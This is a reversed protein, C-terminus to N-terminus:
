SSSFLVKPPEQFPIAYIGDIVRRYDAPDAVNLKERHFARTGSSFSLKGADLYRIANDISRAPIVAGQAYRSAPFPIDLTGQEFAEAVAEALDIPGLNYVAMLLEEVERCLWYREEELRDAPATFSDLEAGYLAVERCFRISAANAEKTPIGKAEQFTKNILKTAKGAVAAVVGSAILALAKMEENPFVGMWQHYSTFLAPTPLGRLQCHQRCLRPIEQLAAIDQVLCGTQPYGITICTVGQEVALLMELISIAISISPPTLVATLPGFTERDLPTGSESLLGTLRDIYQWHALSQRLPVNKCYPLNYSIGGGEYGTAGAAYSCEALLRGDPSGHRVQVPCHVANVLERGREVGQTVLPYGNLNTGRAAKAYQNLRTYSDITITLIDPAGTEELYTLLATMAVHDSVGCRPQILVTSAQSLVDYLSSRERSCLGDVTEQLPFPSVPGTTFVAARQALLEDLHLKM